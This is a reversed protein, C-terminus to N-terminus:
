SAGLRVRTARDKPGCGYELLDAAEYSQVDKYYNTMRGTLYKKSENHTMFAEKKITPTLPNGQQDREFVSMIMYTGQQSQVTVFIGEIRDPHQSVPLTPNYTSANTLTWAEVIQAIWTCQPALSRIGQEIVDKDFIRNKHEDFMIVPMITDNMCIMNVFDVCGDRKLCKCATEYYEKAVLSLANQDTM